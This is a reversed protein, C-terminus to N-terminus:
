LTKDQLPVTYRRTQPSQFNFFPSREVIILSLLVCLLLPCPFILQRWSYSHPDLYEGFLYVHSQISAFYPVEHELDLAWPLIGLPRPGKRMLYPLFPLHTEHNHVESGLPCRSSGEDQPISLSSSENLNPPPRCPFMTLYTNPSNM